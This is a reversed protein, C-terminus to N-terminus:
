RQPKANKRQLRVIESGALLFPGFGHLDGQLRPRGRYYNADGIDTSGCVEVLDGDATVKHLLARWGKRAAAAFANGLWGEIVGRALGYVFMGTCSTEIWTEPQDLLQHWGGAPDQWRALGAAHEAFAHRVEAARAHGAPLGALLEVQALIMWGNARGWPLGLPKNQLVHWAHRYLGKESVFLHTRAGLIQNVAEDLSASNRRDRYTRVLCPVLM